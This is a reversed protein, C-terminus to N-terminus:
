TSLRSSRFHTKTRLSASRRRQRDIMNASDSQAKRSIFDLFLTPRGRDRIMGWSSHFPSQQCPAPATKKPRLCFNRSCVRRRKGERTGERAGCFSCVSFVVSASPLLILFYGLSRFSARPHPKMSANYRCSVMIRWEIPKLIIPKIANVHELGRFGSVKKRSQVRGPHSSAEHLYLSGDPLRCVGTRRGTAATNSFLFLWPQLFLALAPLLGHRM